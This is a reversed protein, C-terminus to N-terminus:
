LHQVILIIGYIVCGIGIILFKIHNGSTDPKGKALSKMQVVILWIGLLALAIGGIINLTNM